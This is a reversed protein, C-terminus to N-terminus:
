FIRLFCMIHGQNVFCLFFFALFVFCLVFFLVCFFCCINLIFNLLSLNLINPGWEFSIEATGAHNLALKLKSRGGALVIWNPRYWGIRASNARNLLFRGSNSGLRLLDWFFFFVWVHYRCAPLPTPRPHLAWKAVDTCWLIGWYVEFMPFVHFLTM